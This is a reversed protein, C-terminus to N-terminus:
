RNRRLHSELVRSAVSIPYCFCFFMLLIYLYIATAFRDGDSAIVTKAISLVDATGTIVVLSTGIFLMAYTTMINPLMQPFAQPLIVRRLIAGRRYGLSSASEWQAHPITQIGNRFVEAMYATVPVSLGVVAKFFPSVWFEVGGVSIRFPILYLMAYLVVLWPSNRMLNMLAVCFWRILANHSTMGAGLLVGLFSSIVMACLSILINASFGGGLSDFNASGTLLLSSRSVLVQFAQGSDKGYACCFIGAVVAIVGLFGLGLYRNAGSM